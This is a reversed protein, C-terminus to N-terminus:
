QICGGTNNGVTKQPDTLDTGSWGLFEYGTKTPEGITFTDTEITYTNKISSLSGGNLEIDISYSVITWKATLICDSTINWSTITVGNEGTIQASNYYWGGFTYGNCTPIDFTYTEGMEVFKYTSETTGDNYDFDVKVGNYVYNWYIDIADINQFFPLGM